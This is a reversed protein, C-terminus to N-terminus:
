TELVTIRSGLNSLSASVEQFAKTLLATTGGDDVSLGGLDRM